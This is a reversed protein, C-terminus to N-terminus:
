LINIGLDESQFEGDNGLYKLWKHNDSSSNIFGKKGIVKCILVEGTIDVLSDLASNGGFSYTGSECYEIVGSINVDCSGSSSSGFNNNGTAICNRIRGSILVEEGAASSNGFSSAVSKCNEILGSILVGAGSSRGFSSGASKCNRIIGSIIVDVDTSYGCSVQDFECNEVIANELISGMLVGASLCKLNSYKGQWDNVSTQANIILNDWNGYDTVSTAHGISKGSGTNNVTFGSIYYDNPNIVLITHDANSSTIIVDQPNALSVIDVYAGISIFSSGLDYKGALLYIVARNTSSLPQGNPTKTYSSGMIAGLKTGNELATGNNRVVEYNTGSYPIGGILNGLEDITVRRSDGIAYVPAEIPGSNKSIELIDKGKKAETVSGYPDLEDIRKTLAM